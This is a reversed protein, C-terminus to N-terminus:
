HAFELRCLSDEMLTLMNIKWFGKDRTVNICIEVKLTGDQRRAGPEWRGLARQCSTM